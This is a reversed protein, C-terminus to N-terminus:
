LYTCNVKPQGSNVTSQEHLISNVQTLPHPHSHKVIRTTYLSIISVSVSIHTPLNRIENEKEKEKEKRMDSGDNQICTKIGRTCM